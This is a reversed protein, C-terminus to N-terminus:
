KVLEAVITQYDTEGIYFHEGAGEVFVIYQKPNPTERVMDGCENYLKETTPHLEKIAVVKNLNIVCELTEGYSNIRNIKIFNKM